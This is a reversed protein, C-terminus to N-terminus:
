QSGSAMERPVTIQYRGVFSGNKIIQRKGSGLDLKGTDLKQFWAHGHRESFWLFLRKAKVQRCDMLLSMTVRPRLTSASEFLHDVAEFDAATKVNELVELLALEPKACRLPWDWHGFPLTTLADEPLQTFLSPKGQVFRYGSGVKNVWVPLRGAGYLWIVSVGRVPLDHAFGQVELATRGGVHLGYGLVQLSYAVHQWKLPPGQRRYIGRAAAVLIGSRLYYDIASRKFGKAYLWDRNVLLGDPLVKDLMPHRRRNIIEKMHMDVGHMNHRKYVMELLFNINSYTHM